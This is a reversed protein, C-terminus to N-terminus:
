LGARVRRRPHGGASLALARWPRLEVFAGAIGRPGGVGVSTGVSVTRAFRDPADDARALVPALVMSLCLLTARM